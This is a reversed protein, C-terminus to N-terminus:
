AFRQAKFFHATASGDAESFGGYVIPGEQASAAVDADGAVTGRGALVGHLDAAAYADDTRLIMDRVEVSCTGNDHVDRLEGTIHDGATTSVLGVTAMGFKDAGVKLTVAFGRNAHSKQITNDHKFPLQKCDARRSASRGISNAAM